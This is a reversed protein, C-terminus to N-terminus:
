RMFITMGNYLGSGTRESWALHYENENLFDEIKGNYYSGCVVILVPLENQLQEFYDDMITSDVRGVPFQYSYKTAHNRESLVYLLDRSGYVSIAEDPKTNSKIFSVAANDSAYYESENRHNYYYESTRLLTIGRPVVLILSLYIIAALKVKSLFKANKLENLCRAIPFTVAPTLIMGYHMYQRGSLCITLLTVILYVFYILGITKDNKNKLGCVCISLASSILVIPDSAFALFSHFRNIFTARDKDSSYKINFLIYQEFFSSLAHNFALWVMFIGIILLFGIFFPIVLKKLDDWSKQRIMQILVAVCFVVWLSIMNIRLLCVCGLCFGCTILRFYSIKQNIYYDLFIYLSVSIFFMAYEETLNGGEFYLNLLSISCLTSFVSLLRDCVLRAAKYMFFFAAYNMVFEVYWIGRYYSIMLGIYNFFYLLPGKHDFSDLYPMGGNKMVTAVTIFVSSDTNCPANRIFCLPSKLMYLFTVLLFLIMVGVSRLRENKFCDLRLIESSTIKKLNTKINQM